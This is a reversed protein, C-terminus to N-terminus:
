NGNYLEKFRSNAYNDTMGGIFDAINRMFIKQKLFDEKRNETCIVGKFILIERDVEKKKGKRVDVTPINMEKLERQIRRLTHDPLQKPNNYYAQFLKKIIYMSKGDFCNVEQSNIVQLNIVEELKDVVRKMEKSFCVIHRDIIVDRHIEHTSLYEAMNKKSNEAIDEIFLRMIKPTVRARLLEEPDVLERKSNKIQDLSNEIISVIPAMFDYEKLEEKLDNIDVLRGAVGDDLDHGRQAIEDAWAVVQGELTSAFPQNLYLHEKDGIILFEDIDFCKNCCTSCDIDKCKKIKTHKLMGELVQYTLDLGECEVYKEEVYNALKVSQYNHKFGGFNEPNHERCLKLRGSMILDLQREGEHGFPTHGIDHGLAIAEVLDEHLGLSRAIGKAIQNVELTHTLRTRYHDGKHTSYVQAKDVTRRFAKSHVIRDKDRQFESRCEDPKKIGIARKAMYSRQALPHLNKEMESVLCSINDRELSTYEGKFMKDKKANHVCNDKLDYLIDYLIDQPLERMFLYEKVDKLNKKYKSANVYLGEIERIQKEDLPRVGDIVIKLSDDAVPQAIGIWGETIRREKSDYGILVTELLKDEDESFWYFVKEELSEPTDYVYKGTHLISSRLSEGISRNSIYRLFLLKM